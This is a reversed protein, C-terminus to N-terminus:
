QGRLGWLKMGLYIICIADVLAMFGLGYAGLRAAVVLAFCVDVMGSWYDGQSISMNAMLLAICVVLMVIVSTLDFTTGFLATMGSRATEVWTGAWQDDLIDTYNSTFTRPTVDINSLDFLFVDPAMAQLGFVAERFYAQGYSSLVTTFEGAATLYYDVALGWAINLKLAMAVVRAGLAIQNDATTVAATYDTVLVDYPYTPPTTFNAPNGTLRLTYPAGWVLGAAKPFYMSYVAENYGDDNFETGVTSGLVTVGGTDILRWIFTNPFSTAPPALYPVDAYWIYLSDGVELLNRFVDVQDLVPTSDPNLTAFVPLVASVALMVALVIFVIQRKM